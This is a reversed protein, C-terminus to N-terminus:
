LEDKKEERNISLYEEIISIESNKEKKLVDLKESSEKFTSQLSKLLEQHDKDADEIEKNLVKLKTDLQTQTMKGIVSITKKQKESCYDLNEPGCLPKLTDVYKKLAEYSREGSYDENTKKWFRKLTPYGKVGYKDCLLKGNDTCDVDGIIVNKPGSDGLLDWDPKLKKCHGCWPAFFKIFVSKGSNVVTEDWNEPTIEVVEGHTKSVFLSIYILLKTNM